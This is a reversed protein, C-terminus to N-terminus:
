LFDLLVSNMLGLGEPTLRFVRGPEYHSLGAALSPQAQRLFAEEFRQGHMDQFARLDLGEILRLGLMLSEFRSEEASILQLQPAEGAIYAEIGEPNQRRVRGRELGHAASGFGLYDQRQWCHLNHLCRRGPLAFNSLEYHKFGAEALRAVTHAYMAAEEDEPPLQLRGAAIDAALPTGEELILGYCSLHQPSLALAQELTQQWTALDQGPIGLMLDLNINDFGQRRARAVADHVEAWGHQRQLTRLLAPDASQAGLSLRNVGGARLAQLFADSLMGPNAECSIECGEALRFSSRITSLIQAIQEPMLLSPTGGGIFVTDIVPHQLAAARERLERCLREVYPARLSMRGACSPFDCYACKRACFPVHVYLGLPKM